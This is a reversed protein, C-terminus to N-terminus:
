VIGRLQFRLDTGDDAAQRESRERVSTNQPLHRERDVNLLEIREVVADHELLDGRRAAARGEAVAELFRVDYELMRDVAEEIVQAPQKGTRLALELVEM